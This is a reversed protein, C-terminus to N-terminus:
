SYANREAFDQSKYEVFEFQLNNRDLYYVNKRFPHAGGWHDVEYGARGLREIVADVSPVVVGIHKTGIDHGTWEPATGEGGDRLAVYSSQTGIHLWRIARGFWDITGQGRVRWSPLAAALFAVTDDLNKVTINAHELYEQNM